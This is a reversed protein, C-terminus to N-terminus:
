VNEKKAKVIQNLENLLADLDQIGRFRAQLELSGWAPRGGWSFCYLGTEHLREVLEPYSNVIEAIQTDKTIYSM